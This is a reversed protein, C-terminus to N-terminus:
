GMSWPFYVIFTQFWWGSITSHNVHVLTPNVWDFVMRLIVLFPHYLGNGFIIPKHCPQECYCGLGQPSVTARPAPVDDFSFVAHAWPWSRYALSLGTSASFCGSVVPKGNRQRPSCVDMTRRPADRQAIFMWLEIRLYYSTPLTRTALFTWVVLTALFHPVFLESWFHPMMALLPVRSHVFTMTWSGTELNRQAVWTLFYSLQTPDLIM